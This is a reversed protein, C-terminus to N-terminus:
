KGTSGTNGTNGTVLENASQFNAWAKGNWHLMVVVGGGNVTGVAWASTASAAAVGFLSDCTSCSPNPSSVLSWAKGNWHLILTHTGHATGVPAPAEATGVAWANSASTAAVSVLGSTLGSASGPSPSAVPTWTKGNWHLILTKSDQRGVIWANSASTATIGGADFTIGATGAPGSIRTWAKGNWHLILISDVGTTLNQTAGVAWANTASTATVGALQDNGPSPSPVRTWSKGNWHLIATEARPAGYATGVAWANDASTAAVADLFTGAAGPNPSAVRTWTGGSYRAIVSSYGDNGAPLYGVAWASSGSVAAVGYFGPLDAYKLLNANMRSETWTKGNWYQLVPTPGVTWAKGSSVAVSNLQGSYPVYVSPQQMGAQAAAAPVAGTVGVALAAACALGLIPTIRTKRM